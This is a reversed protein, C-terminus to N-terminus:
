CTTARSARASSSPSTATFRGRIAPRSGERSATMPRRNHGGHLHVTLEGAKAPLNHLFTVQTEEGAPRRITPGPFTGDYTWMKTKEGKRVAVKAPRIPIQIQADTIVRPIRLPRTFRPRKAALAPSLGLAGPRLRM